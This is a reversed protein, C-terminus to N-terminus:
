RGTATAEPPAKGRQLGQPVLRIVILYGVAIGPLTAWTSGPSLLIGIVELLTWAVIVGIVIREALPIGSGLRRWLGILAGVLAHCVGSSGVLFGANGFLLWFIATSVIGVAILVGTVRSGLRPEVFFGIILITFLNSLLFHAWPHVLAYGIISIPLQSVAGERGLSGLSLLEVLWSDTMWVAASVILAAIAFVWVARM